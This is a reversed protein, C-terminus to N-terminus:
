YSLASPYLVCNSDVPVNMRKTFMEKCVPAGLLGALGSLAVVRRQPGPCSPGPPTNNGSLDGQIRVGGTCLSWAKFTGQSSCDGKLCTSSHQSLARGAAEVWELHELHELIRSIFFKPFKM